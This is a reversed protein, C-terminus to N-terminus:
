GHRELRFDARIVGVEEGLTNTVSPRRFANLPESEIGDLVGLRDLVHLVAVATARKGGDEVKVAMGFSGDTAGVAFVGEAGVKGFLREGAAQGLATGFRGKGAVLFPHACIASVIRKPPGDAGGLRAFGGALRALPTAFAVVGCGDQGLGIEGEQLDTWRGMETVMRVQVPHERRIYGRTPWGHVVALALMGAHKGSCNNHISSPSVGARLLTQAATDDLPPHPGCELDSEDLGAKSLISHALSEHEPEGNHSSCCLALEETILGLREAVQDDVLPVAQFPKAASRHFVVREADGVSAMLRGRSDVVAVHVRHASEVLGAREVVVCSM